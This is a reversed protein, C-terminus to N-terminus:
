GEIKKMSWNVIRCVEEYVKPKIIAEREAATLGEPVDIVFSPDGIFCPSVQYKCTPPETPREKAVVYIYSEDWLPGEAYDWASGVWKYANLSKDGAWKKILEAYKRPTPAPTAAKPVWVIPTEDPRNSEGCMGRKFGGIACYFEKWEFFSCGHCGNRKVATYEGKFMGHQITLDKQDESFHFEPTKCKQETTSM